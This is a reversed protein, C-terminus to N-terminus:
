QIDIIELEEDLLEDDIANKVAQFIANLRKKLYQTSSHLEKATKTLNNNNSIYIALICRSIDDLTNAARILESKFPNESFYQLTEKATEAAKETQLNAPRGAKSFEFKIM